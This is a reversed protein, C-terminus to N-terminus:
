SVEFEDGQALSSSLASNNSLTEYLVNYLTEDNIENGVGFRSEGDYHYFAYNEGNDDEEGVLVYKQGGYEIQANWFVKNYTVEGSKIVKIKQM